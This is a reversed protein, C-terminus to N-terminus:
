VTMKEYMGSSLSHIYPMYENVCIDLNNLGVKLIDATSLVDVDTHNEIGRQHSFTM